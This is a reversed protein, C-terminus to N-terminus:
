GGWIKESTSRIVNKLVNESDACFVAYFFDCFVLFSSFLQFDPHGLSHMMCEENNQILANVCKATPKNFEANHGLM